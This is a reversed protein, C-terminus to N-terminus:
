AVAQIQELTAPGIRKFDQATGESFDRTTFKRYKVTFEVYQGILKAANARVPTTRLTDDDLGAVTQLLRRFARRSDVAFEGTMWYPVAGNTYFNEDATFREGTARALAKINVEVDPSKDGNQKNDNWAVGTVKGIYQQGEPLNEPNAMDGDSFYDQEESM